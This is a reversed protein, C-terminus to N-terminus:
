IKSIAAVNKSFKHVMPTLYIETCTLLSNLTGTGLKRVGHKTHLTGSCIAHANLLHISIITLWETDTIRMGQRVVDTIGSTQKVSSSM